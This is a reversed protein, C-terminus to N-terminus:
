LSISLASSTSEGFELPVLHRTDVFFFELPIFTRQKDKQGQEVDGQSAYKQQSAKILV